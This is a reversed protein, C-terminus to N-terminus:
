VMLELRCQITKVLSRDRKGTIFIKIIVNFFIFYKSLILFLM